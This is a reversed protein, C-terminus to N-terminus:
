RLWALAAIAVIQAAAIAYVIARFPQKRTKHRLIPAGGLIAPVAGLAALTYFVREPVRRRDGVAARKDHWFLIFTVLNLAVLWTALAEIM